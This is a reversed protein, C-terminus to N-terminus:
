GNKTEETLKKACGKCPQVDKKIQDLIFADMTFWTGILFGVSILAVTDLIKGTEMEAAVWLWRRRTV